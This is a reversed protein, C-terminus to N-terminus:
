KSCRLLCHPSFKLRSVKNQFPPPEVSNSVNGRAITHERETTIQINDKRKTQHLSTSSIRSTTIAANQIWPSLTCSATAMPSLTSAHISILLLTLLSLVLQLTINFVQLCAASPGGAKGM